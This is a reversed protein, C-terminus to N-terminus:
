IFACKTKTRLPLPSKEKMPRWAQFYKCTWGKITPDWEVCFTARRSPKTKDEGHIDVLIDWSEDRESLESNDLQSIDEESDLTGTRM